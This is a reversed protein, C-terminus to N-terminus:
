ASLIQLLFRNNWGAKKRMVRLSKKDKAKNLLNIAMHKIIAFNKPAHDKRVRSDDDRFTMDLVWHLRNEIGWHSRVAHAFRKVDQPLSSIFYRTQTTTRGNIERASIVRGISTLGAWDPHRERLWDIDECQTYSRTEIRGKDGDVTQLTSTNDHEREEFWLTVDACLSGQNGKLTLVYDADKGRIKRAISRQCGMADLTVIAGKLYLLDLLKPIDKIENKKHASARQGLVLRLDNCYASILHLPTTGGAKSGRVTKGDVAVVTGDIRGSLKAAWQAFVANFPEPDLARFVTSLTDHSLIGYEFDALRRLFKLKEAGYEVIVVFSDCRSVVGCLCLLLIEDLPYLVKTQQRPDEFTSIISQFSAVKEL